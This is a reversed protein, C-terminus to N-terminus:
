VFAPFERLVPSRKKLAFLRVDADKAMGVLRFGFPETLCQQEIWSRCTRLSEFKWPTHADKNERLLSYNLPVDQEIIPPRLSTANSM